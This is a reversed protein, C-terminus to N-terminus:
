TWKWTIQDPVESFQVEQVVDWLAVFEAMETATSM